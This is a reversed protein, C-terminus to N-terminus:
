ETVVVYIQENLIQQKATATTERDNGPWRDRYAVSGKMHLKRSM